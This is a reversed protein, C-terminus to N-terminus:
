VSTTMGRTNEGALWSKSTGSLDSFKWGKVHCAATAPPSTTEKNQQYRCDVLSMLNPGRIGNNKFAGAFDDERDNSLRVFCAQHMMRASIM